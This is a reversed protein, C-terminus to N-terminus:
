PKRTATFPRSEGQTVHDVAVWQETGVLSDGHVAVDYNMIVQLHTENDMERRVIESPQVAAFHAGTATVTGALARAPGDAAGTGNLRQWTGHISDGTIQLDIRAHGKVVSQEGNVVRVQAAFESYWTGAIATQASLPVAVLFILVLLRLPRRM